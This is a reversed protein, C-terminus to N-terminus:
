DIIRYDGKESATSRDSDSLHGSSQQLRRPQGKMSKLEDVFAQNRAPKDSKKETGEEDSPESPYRPKTINLSSNHPLPAKNPKMVVPEPIAAQVEKVTETSVQLDLEVDEQIVELDEIEMPPPLDDEEYIVEDDIIDEPPAPFNEVIDLEVTANKVELEEEYEEEDEEEDEEEAGVTVPEDVEPKKDEVPKVVEEPTAAGVAKTDEYEEESDSAVMSRRNELWIKEKRWNGDDSEIELDKEEEEDDVQDDKVQEEEVEEGTEEDVEGEEDEEDSVVNAENTEKLAEDGSDGWEKDDVGENIRSRVEQITGEMIEIEIQPGDVDDVEEVELEDEATAVNDYEVENESVEEEVEEEWSETATEELEAVAEELEPEGLEAEEYAAKEFADFENIVKEAEDTIKEVEPELFAKLIPQAFEAPAPITDDTSYERQFSNITDELEQQAQLYEEM